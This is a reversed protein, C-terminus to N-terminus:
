CADSPMIGQCASSISIVPATGIKFHLGSVESRGLHYKREMWEQSVSPVEEVIDRDGLIREDSKQFIKARGMAKVM